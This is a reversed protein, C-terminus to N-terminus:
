QAPCLRQFDKLAQATPKVTQELRAFSMGSVTVKGSPAVTFWAYAEYRTPQHVGISIAYTGDGTVDPMMPGLGGARYDDPFAKLNERINVYLEKAEKTSDVLSWLAGECDEPRRLEENRRIHKDTQADSEELVKLSDADLVLVGFVDSEKGKPGSRKGFTVRLREGQEEVHIDGQIEQHFDKTAALAKSKAELVQGRTRRVGYFLVKKAYLRKLADIDSRNLADTWQAVVKSPTAEAEKEKSNKGAPPAGPDAAVSNAPVRAAKAAKPEPAEATSTEEGGPEQRSEDNSCALFTLACALLSGGRLSTQRRVINSGLHEMGIVPRLIDDSSLVSYRSGTLPVSGTLARM